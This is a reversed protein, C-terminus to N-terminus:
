EKILQGSYVIPGTPGGTPSGGEPEITVAFNAKEVTADSPLATKLPTKDVLGMSKPTKGQGIYWLELSRGPPVETAVPRVFVNQSKLDVRIILAPQDGGRNVVAVYSAQPEARRLIDRDLVFLTLGAALAGALCAANRWRNRSRRLMVSLIATDFGINGIVGADRSVQPLASEIEDWVASPPTVEQVAASLPVLRMQWEAVARRAEGSEALVIEFAAREEASLTGLVYEAAQIDIEATM